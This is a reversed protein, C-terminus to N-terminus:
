ENTRANAYKFAYDSTALWYYTTGSGNNTSSNRIKFGNALPDVDSPDFTVLSTPPSSTGIKLTAPTGNMWVVPGDSNANGKYDGSLVKTDSLNYTNLSKHGTPPTYEFPRQGFNASFTATSTTGDLNAVIPVYTGSAISSVSGISTSDKWIEFDGDDLDYACRIVNGVSSTAQGTVLNTADHRIRGDGCYWYTDYRIDAVDLEDIDAIGVRVQTARNSPDWSNITIEFYWKGASAAITGLAFGRGPLSGTGSLTANLNGGNLTGGARMDLPNLVCYNGGGNLSNNYPTGPVDNLIDLGVGSSASLNTATWDNNNGSLDEGIDSTNSFKLRFGNSGYSRTFEKPVWQSNTADTMGFHSGKLALGDIFYVDAFYGDFLNNEHIANGIRHEINDNIAGDFNQTYANSQSNTTRTGNVYVIQRDRETANSMDFTWVIHYWATPDRFKETTQFQKNDSNGTYGYLTGDSNYKLYLRNNADSRAAFLYGNNELKGLKVWASWTWTKRNGESSFTKSLYASDDENFRLSKAINIPTGTEGAGSAGMRIGTNSLVGM